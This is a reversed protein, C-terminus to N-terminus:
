VEEKLSPLNGYKKRLSAKRKNVAKKVKDEDYHFADHDFHTEANSGQQKALMHTKPSGSDHYHPSFFLHRSYVKKHKLRIEDAIEDSVAKKINDIIWEHSMQVKIDALSEPKASKPNSEAKKIPGNRGIKGKKGNRRMGAGTSSAENAKGSEEPELPEILESPDAIANVGLTSTISPKRTNGPKRLFKPADEDRSSKAEVIAYPKGGNRGEARWVADIGTGNPGDALRYLVHSSKPNGGKSLKGLTTKGPLGGTWKGQAGDDHGKWKEGWKFTYACVYDAIHEGSIGVMDNTLEHVAMTAAQERVSENAAGHAARDRGQTGADQAGPQNDKARGAPSRNASSNPQHKKWKKLRKEVIGVMVPLGNRASQLSTLVVSQMASPLSDFVSSNKVGEIITDLEARLKSANFIEELLAEPSTHIGCEQLVFRLLDYLVPAFREPNKNVIRLSKKVGDGPGPIWGIIALLMDFQANEKEETKKANYLSIASEVTDYADIAQGLFPVLGIAIGKGLEVAAEKYAESRNETTETKVSATM